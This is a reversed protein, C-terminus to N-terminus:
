QKHEQSLAQLSQALVQVLWQMEDVSLNASGEAVSQLLALRQRRAVAMHYAWLSASTPGKGKPFNPLPRPRPPELDTEGCARLVDDILWRLTLLQDKSLNAQFRRQEEPRRAIPVFSSLSFGFGYKNPEIEAALEYAPSSIMTAKM